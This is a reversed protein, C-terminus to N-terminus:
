ALSKVVRTRFSFKSLPDLGPGSTYLAIPPYNIAALSVRPILRRRKRCPVAAAESPVAAVATPIPGAAASGIASTDISGCPASSRPRSSTSSLGVESPRKPYMNLFWGGCAAELVQEGGQTLGHLFPRDDAGVEGVRLRALRNQLAVATGDHRGLVM